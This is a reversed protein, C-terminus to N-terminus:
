KVIGVRFYQKARKAVEKKKKLYIVTPRLTPYFSLEIYM